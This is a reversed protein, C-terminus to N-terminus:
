PNHQKSNGAGQCGNLCRPGTLPDPGKSVRSDRDSLSNCATPQRSGHTPRLCCCSPRPGFFSPHRFASFPIRHRRSLSPCADPVLTLPAGAFSLPRSRAAQLLAAKDAFRLLRFVLPRPRSAAHVRRASEIEPTTGLVPPLLTRRLFSVADGGEAGEPLGLLRLNNRRSRSELTRCRSETQRAYELLSRNEMRLSALELVWGRADQELRELHSQLRSVDRSVASMDASLRGLTESLVPGLESRQGEGRNGWRDQSLSSDLCRKKSSNGPETRPEFSSSTVVSAPSDDARATALPSKEGSKPSSSGSWEPVRPKPAPSTRSRACPYESGKPGCVSTVTPSASKHSSGVEPSPTRKSPKKPLLPDGGIRSRPKEKM